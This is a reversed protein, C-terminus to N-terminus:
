GIVDHGMRGPQLLDFLGPARRWPANLGIAAIKVNKTRLKSFNKNPHLWGKAILAIRHAEEKFAPKCGGMREAREILEHLMLMLGIHKQMKPHM